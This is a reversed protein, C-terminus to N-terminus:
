VRRICSRFPTAEGSSASFIVTGDCGIVRCPPHRNILSAKPGLTVLLPVLDVEMCVKCKRCTARVQTGKHVMGGLTAIWDLEMSVGVNPRYGGM